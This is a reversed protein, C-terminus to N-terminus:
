KVIRVVGTSGIASEDLVWDPMIDTPNGGAAIYGRIYEGIDRLSADVGCNVCTIKEGLKYGSERHPFHHKACKSWARNREKIQAFVAAFDTM